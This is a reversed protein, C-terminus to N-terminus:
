RHDHRCHWGLVEKLVLLGASVESVPLGSTCQVVCGVGDVVEVSVSVGCSVAVHTECRNQGTVYVM